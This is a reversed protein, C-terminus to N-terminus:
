WEAGYVTVIVDNTTVAIEFQVWAGGVDDVMLATVPASFSTLASPSTVGRDAFPAADIHNGQRIKVAAGANGTVPRARIDFSLRWSDQCLPIPDSLFTTGAEVLQESLVVGGGPTSLSEYGNAM